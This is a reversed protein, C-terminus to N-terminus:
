VLLSVPLQTRSRKTTGPLTTCYHTTKNWNRFASHLLINSRIKVPTCSFVPTQQKLAVISELMSMMPTLGVGASILVTPLHASQLFFDGAPPLIDLEDGAQIEDHLYNSVLGAVEGSERKVSIRYSHGNAKDSLSYQRIEYYDCHAPKVKVGLYQGPLYDVVADGDKPVLVFSSVLESERIKEKVFFVVHVM